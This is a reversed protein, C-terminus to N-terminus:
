LTHYDTTPTEGSRWERSGAGVDLVFKTGFRDNVFPTHVDPIKFINHKTQYSTTYDPTLMGSYRGSMAQNQGPIQMNRTIDSNIVWVNISFHYPV